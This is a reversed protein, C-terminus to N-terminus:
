IERPELVAPPEDDHLHAAHHQDTVWERIEALTCKRGVSNFLQWWVVDVGQGLVFSLARFVTCQPRRHWFRWTWRTWGCWRCQGRKNVQHQGILMTVAALLRVTHETCETPQAASLQDAWQDLRERLLRYRTGWVTSM